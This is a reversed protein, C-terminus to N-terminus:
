DNLLVGTNVTKATDGWGDSAARWLRCALGGAGAGTAAPQEPRGRHQVASSVFEFTSQARRADASFEPSTIISRTVGRLDGKTDPVGQRGEGPGAVDAAFRRAAPPSSNATASPPLFDARDGDRKGGATFTGLCRRITTTCSRQVPLQAM